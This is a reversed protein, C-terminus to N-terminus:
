FKTWTEGKIVKAISKILNKADNTIGILENNSFPIDRFLNKFKTETYLFNGRIFLQFHSSIPPVQSQLMGKLKTISKYETSILNYIKNKDDVIDQIETVLDGAEKEYQVLAASTLAGPSQSLPARSKLLFQQTVSVPLASRGGGRSLLKKKKVVLVNKRKIKQNKKQNKKQDNKLVRYISTDM